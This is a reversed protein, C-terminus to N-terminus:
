PRFPPGTKPTAVPGTKCTAQCDYAEFVSVARSAFPLLGDRGDKKLGRDFVDFWEPTLLSNSTLGNEARWRVLYVYARLTQQLSLVAANWGLPKPKLSYYILLKATILDAEFDAHLLSKANPWPTIAKDFDFSMVEGHLRVTWCNELLSGSELWVPKFLKGIMEDHLSRQPETRPKPRTVM